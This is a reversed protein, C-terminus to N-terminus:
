EFHARQQHFLPQLADLEVEFVDPEADRRHEHESVAEVHVLPVAVEAEDGLVGAGVASAGNWLPWLSSRPHSVVRVVRHRFGIAGRGLHPDFCRHALDELGDTLVRVAVTQHACGGADGVHVDVLDEDPQVVVGRTVKGDGELGLVVLHDHHAVDGHVRHALVVEHRERALRVDGVDGALVTPDGTQRLDRAEDVAVRGTRLHLLAEGGLDSVREDLASRGVPTSTIISASCKQMDIRPTLFGPDSVMVDATRPWNLVLAAVRASAILRIM